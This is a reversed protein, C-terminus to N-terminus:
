KHHKLFLQVFCNGIIRIMEDIHDLEAVSEDMRANARQVTHVMQKRDRIDEQKKYADM